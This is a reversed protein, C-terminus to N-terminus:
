KVIAVVLTTIVSIVSVITSVTSLNQQKMSNYSSSSKKAYNPSVYILDNQKLYYYPSNICDASTLDIRHSERRGDTERILLVNTRNGYITLDGRQGLAQLLTARNGSFYTVGPSAVEGLVTVSFSMLNVTVMPDKVYQSIRETLYKELEMSTMGKVHLKGLVPFDIDGMENIRYTQINPITSVSHSQTTMQTYTSKNFSAVAAQDISSVIISCEDNEQLKPAMPYQQNWISDPIQETDQFYTIRDQTHCANFTIMTMVFIVSALLNRVAIGLRMVANSLQHPTRLFSKMETYYKIM